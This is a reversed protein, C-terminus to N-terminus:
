RRGIRKLKIVPEFYGDSNNGDIIIRRPSVLLLHGKGKKRLKATFVFYSSKAKVFGSSLNLGSTRRSKKMEYINIRVQSDGELTYVGKFILSHNNLYLIVVARYNKYFRFTYGYRNAYKLEWSGSITEFSVPFSPENEVVPKKEELPKPVKNNVDQNGCSLFVIMAASILLATVLKLSRCPNNKGMKKVM